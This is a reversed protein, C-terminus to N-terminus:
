LHIKIKQFSINGLHTAMQGRAMRSIQFTVNIAYTAKAYESLCAYRRAEYTHAVIEARISM